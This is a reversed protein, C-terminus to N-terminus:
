DIILGPNMKLPNKWEIGYKDKLLEEQVHWMARAPCFRGGDREAEKCLRNVERYLKCEIRIFEDTDEVPDHLLYMRPEGEKRARAEMYKNWVSRYTKWFVFDKDEVNSEFIPLLADKILFFKIQETYDWKEVIEYSKNGSDLCNREVSQFVQVCKDVTLLGDKYMDFVEIFLSYSAHYDEWSKIEVIPCYRIIHIDEVVNFDLVVVEKKGRKTLVEVYSGAEVDFGKTDFEGIYFRDGVITRCLM